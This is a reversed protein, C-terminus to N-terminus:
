FEPKRFIDTSHAPAKSLPVAPRSSSSSPSASLASAMSSAGAKAASPSMDATAREVVRADVNSLASASGAVGSLAVRLGTEYLLFLAISVLAMVASGILVVSRQRHRTRTRKASPVEPETPDARKGAKPVRKSAEDRRKAAGAAPEAGRQKTDDADHDTMTTGDAWSIDKDYATSM